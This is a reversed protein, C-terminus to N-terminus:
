VVHGNGSPSPKTLGGRFPPSLIRSDPKRGKTIGRAGDKYSSLHPFRPPPSPLPLRSCRPFHSAAFLKVSRQQLFYRSSFLPQHRCRLALCTKLSQCDFRSSFGLPPPAEAPWAFASPINFECTCRASFQFWALVYEEYRKASFESGAPNHSCCRRQGRFPCKMKNSIFRLWLRENSLNM